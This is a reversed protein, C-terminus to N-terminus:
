RKPRLLSKGTMAAPKVLGMLELVTPAVDALRGNVLDYSRPLSGALFVPVDFTTHATHPEHTEPDRMMEANGHDATILAVGSRSELAALVRGLSEDLAEVAKIAAALDGTHGVMDGNAYNVVILDFRDAMIASVLHDTVERASMEPQLDYTAVKPSQVLQREEGKFVAEAGGNLFYTVHAFKETEALRLQLLGARSVVEGLTDAYDIADFLAPLWANLASSYEVMGAQASFRIRPSVDFGNFDPDVLATMIQRARDARFNTMLLGDGDRMGAYEGIARPMVFEDSQGAAYADALGQRASKAKAGTPRVMANFGLSVRDWRQDRDMAFYRGGITAVSVQPLDSLAKEVEALYGDASSPPTDRGDLFAHILVQLGAQAALRALAVMHDQHSHVGGPSLLGLLHLRGSGAKVKAILEVFRPNTALEGKAIALDVRPLDQTAIRGAGINMHGVESNGMQGPPLGVAEGSTALLAHPFRAAIADLVPTRALTIANDPGPGAHGFGDLICLVVPKPVSTM